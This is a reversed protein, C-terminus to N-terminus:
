FNKRRVVRCSNPVASLGGVTKFIEERALSMVVHHLLPPPTMTTHSSSFSLRVLYFCELLHPSFFRSYEPSFRGKPPIPPPCRYYMSAAYVHL